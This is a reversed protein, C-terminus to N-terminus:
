WYFLPCSCKRLPGAGSDAFDAAQTPTAYMCRVHLTRPAAAYIPLKPAVRDGASERVDAGPGCFRRPSVALTEISAGNGAKGSVADGVQSRVPGPADARSQARHMGAPRPFPGLAQGPALDSAHNPTRHEGLRASRGPQRRQILVAARGRKPKSGCSPAACARAPRPSDCSRVAQGSVRLGAAPCRTAQSPGRPQVRRVAGGLRM